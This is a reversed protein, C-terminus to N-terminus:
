KAIGEEFSKVKGLDIALYIMDMYDESYLELVEHYHEWSFERFWGSTTCTCLRELAIEFSKRRSINFGQLQSREAALVYAEELTALLQVNYPLEDFLEKSCLVEKDPYIFYKYAPKDLHKVAEHLDDHDYIYNIEEKKFFERKIVNLNPHKGLQKDERLRFFRKYEESRKHDTIELRMNKIDSMTKLFHPSNKRFRHSMKFDYLMNKSPVYVTSVFCCVTIGLLPELKVTTYERDHDLILNVLSQYESSHLVEFEIRIGNSYELFYKKSHADKRYNVLIHGSEKMTQKLTDLEYYCGILDVDKPIQDKAYHFQIKSAHSGIIIM